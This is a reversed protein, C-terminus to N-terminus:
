GNFRIALTGVITVLVIGDIFTQRLRSIVAELEKDSM